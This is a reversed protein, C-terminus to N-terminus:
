IEEPGTAPAAPPQSQCLRRQADRCLPFVYIEKVAQGDAQHDRDM